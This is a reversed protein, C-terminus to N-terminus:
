VAFLLAVIVYNHKKKNDHSSTFKNKNGMTCSGFFYCIHLNNNLNRVLFISSFLNLCVYQSNQEAIQFCM